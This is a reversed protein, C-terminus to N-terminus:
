ALLSQKTMVEAWCEGLTIAKKWGQESHASQKVALLEWLSQPFLPPFFYFFTLSPQQCRGSAVVRELCFTASIIVTGFWHQCATLATWKLEQEVLGSWVRHHTRRDPRWGGRGPNWISSRHLSSSSVSVKFKAFIWQNPIFEVANFEDDSHEM